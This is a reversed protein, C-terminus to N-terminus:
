APVELEVCQLETLRAAEQRPVVQAPGAVSQYVAVAAQLLRDALAPTLRPKAFHSQRLVSYHAREAQDFQYILRVGRPAVLLEKMKVDDFLPLHPALTEAPPMRAPDDSRIVADSPWGSPPRVELPLEFAPSYFENGRPRVLLDFIGDYHVPAYLSVKLWLSPLKRVTMDDLIPELRVDFGKYRGALMPFALDDQRIESQQLLNMCDYFFESRQRRERARDRAYLRVLYILAACALLVIDWRM